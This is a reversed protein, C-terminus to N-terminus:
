VWTQTGESGLRLGEPASSILTATKPGQKRWYNPELHEMPFGRERFVESGNGVILM